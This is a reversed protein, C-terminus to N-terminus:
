KTLQKLEKLMDRTPEGGERGWYVSPSWAQRRMAM